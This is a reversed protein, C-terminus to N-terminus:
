DADVLGVIEGHELDVGSVKGDCWESRRAVQHDSLPRDGDAIRVAEDEGVRLRTHRDPNDASRSSIQRRLALPRPDVDVHNLCVGRDIRAVGAAREDVGNALHNTDVARDKRGAAPADPDAEGNRDVSRASYRFVEESVPYHAM